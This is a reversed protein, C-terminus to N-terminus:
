GFIREVRDRYEEYKESRRCREEIEDLTPTKVGSKKFAEGFAELFSTLEEKSEILGINHYGTGFIISRFYLHMRKYIKDRFKQKFEEGGAYECFKQCSQFIKAPIEFPSDISAQGLSMNVIYELISEIEKKKKSMEKVGPKIDFEVKFPQEFLEYDEPNKSIQSFIRESIIGIRNKQQRKSEPKSKIENEIEKLSPIKVDLKGFYSEFEELLNKLEEDSEIPGMKYEIGLVIKRFRSIVRSNFLDTFKQKYEEGYLEECLKRCSHFIKASTEFPSDKIAGKLSMSIIEDFVRMLYRKSKGEESIKVDFIQRFLDYNGPGKNVEQLVDRLNKRLITTKSVPFLESSQEFCRSAEEQQGLKELLHGKIRWTRWTDANDPEIDIARVFCKLAEEYREIKELAFGKNKWADANDPEINIAKECCELAEEYREIKELAFGKNKWVDANDPEIGIAEDYCKIAEEYKELKSLSFGKNIWASTYKRDLRLAKDFWEIAEEGKGLKSLVFGKNNLAVINESKFKLVQNSCELAEEYRKMKKLINGKHYWIRVNEPDLDLARNYGKLAEEDKRLKSFAEGKGSWSLALKLKEEPTKEFYRIAEDFCKIAEKYRGVKNLVFGKDNWALAYEPNIELVNDFYEIAEKNRNKKSLIFGKNHLATFNNPDLELVKDFCELAEDYEKLRNFTEGKSILVFVNEPVYELSRNYCDIADEYRGLKYLANGKNDWAPAYWPAFELTVSYCDIADEYRGLKYLIVGKKNWAPANGLKTAKDFYKLAEEYKGLKSLNDGKNSLALANEPVLKLYENLCEITEEYKGLKHLSSAKRFWGVADKPIEELLAEPTRGFSPKVSILEPFNNEISLYNKLSMATTVVEPDLKIYREHKQDEFSKQDVYYIEGEELDRESDLDVNKPYEGWLLTVRYPKYFTSEVKLCLPFLPLLHYIIRSIEMFRNEPEDEGFVIIRKEHAVDRRLSLHQELLDIIERDINYHSEYKKRGKNLIQKFIKFCEGFTLSFFDSEKKTLMRVHKQWDEGWLIKANFETIIRLYFELSSELGQIEEKPKERRRIAEFLKSRKMDFEKSFVEPLKILWVGEKIEMGSEEREKEVKEKQKRKEAIRKGSFVAIINLRNEELDFSPPTNKLCYVVRFRLLEVVEDIPNDMPHLLLENLYKLDSNSYTDNKSLIDLCEKLIVYSKYENENIERKVGESELWKKFYDSAKSFNGRSWEIEGKLKYKEAILAEKSTFLNPFKIDEKEAIKIAKGFDLFAKDVGGDTVAEELQNYSYLLSLLFECLKGSKIDGNRYCFDKAANLNDKRDEFDGMRSFAVLREYKLNELYNRAKEKGAKIAYEIAKSINELFKEPRNKFALARHKFHNEWDEYSEKEDYKESAHAAKKYADAIGLNDRQLPTEKLLEARARWREAETRWWNTESLSIIHEIDDETPYKERIEKAHESADKWFNLSKEFDREKYYHAASAIQTLLPLFDRKGSKEVVELFKGMYEGLNGIRSFTILREYMLEKELYDKAEKDEAKTAYEIAKLVDEFFKEPEKKSALAKHKYCNEWDKYSKIKGKESAQAAKEYANAIVFHRLSSEDKLSEATARWYFSENLSILREIDASPYKEYLEKAYEYAEKSVQNTNKNDVRYYYITRESQIILSLFVWLKDPEKAAELFNDTCKALIEIYPFLDYGKVGTTYEINTALLRENKLDELYNKVEEVGLKTEFEISKAINEFFKEPNNRVKFAIAEHKYSNALDKYRERKESNRAAKEYYEAIERHKPLQAKKLLNAKARWYFAKNLRIVHEVDKTPYKEYIREAYEYAEKSFKCATDFDGKNYFNKSKNKYYDIQKEHYPYEKAPLDKYRELFGELFNLHSEYDIWEKEEEELNYAYIHRYAADFARERNNLNKFLEEAGSFSERAADFKKLRLYTEGEWYYSEARDIDTFAKRKAENLWGLIGNILSESKKNKTEADELCKIVSEMDFNARIFPFMWNADVTLAGKLALAVRFPNRKSSDIHEEFWIRLEEESETIESQLESTRIRVITNTLTHNASRFIGILRLKEGISEKKTDLRSKLIKEGFFIEPLEKSIQFLAWLFHNFDELDSTRIKGTLEFSNIIQRYKDSLFSDDSINWIFDGLDKPYSRELKETLDIQGILKFIYDSSEDDNRKINVIFNNIRGLGTEELKRKLVGQNSQKICKIVFESPKLNDM